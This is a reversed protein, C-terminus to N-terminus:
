RVTLLVGKQRSELPDAEDCRGDLAVRGWQGQHCGQPVKDGGQNGPPLNWVNQIRTLQRGPDKMSHEWQGSMNNNDSNNRRAFGVTPKKPNHQATGIEPPLPDGGISHFAVAQGCTM